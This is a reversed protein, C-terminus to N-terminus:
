RHDIRRGQQKGLGVELTKGPPDVGAAVEDLEGSAKWPSMCEGRVPLCPCFSLSLLSLCLSLSPSLSLTIRREKKRLLVQVARHAPALPQHRVRRQEALRRSIGSGEPSLKFSHPTPYIPILLDNRVGVDKVAVSRADVDAARHLLGPSLPRPAVAVHDVVLADVVLIM